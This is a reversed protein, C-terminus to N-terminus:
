ANDSDKKALEQRLANQAAKWVAAFEHWLSGKTVFIGKFNKEFWEEFTM